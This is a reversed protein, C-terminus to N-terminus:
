ERRAAEPDDAVLPEIVSPLSVTVNGAMVVGTVAVIWGLAVICSGVAGTVNVFAVM